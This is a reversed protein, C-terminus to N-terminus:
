CPHVLSCWCQDQHEVFQAEAEPCSKLFRHQIKLARHAARRTGGGLEINLSKDRFSQLAVCSAEYLSGSWRRAISWMLAWLAAAQIIFHQSQLFVPPSFLVFDLLHRAGSLFPHCIIDYQRSLHYRQERQHNRLWKNTEYCQTLNSKLIYQKYIYEGNANM